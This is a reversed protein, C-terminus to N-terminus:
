TVVKKSRYRYTAINRGDVLVMMLLLVEVSLVCSRQYTFTPDRPWM